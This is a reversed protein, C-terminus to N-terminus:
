VGDTFLGPSKRDDDGLIECEAALVSTKDKSIFYSATKIYKYAQTRYRDVYAKTAQLIIDRDYQPYEKMFLMLKKSCDTSSSRVYYGGTTVGSPFLRRFNDVFKEWDTMKSEEEVKVEQTVPEKVVESISSYDEEDDFIINITSNKFIIKYQEETGPNLYKKSVLIYIDEKFFLDKRYLNKMKSFGDKDQKHIFFALCYQNPTLDLKVLREVDIKM